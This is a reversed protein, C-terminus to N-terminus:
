RATDSDLRNSIVAAEGLVLLPCHLVSSVLENPPENRMVEEVGKEKLSVLLHSQYNTNQRNSTLPQYFQRVNRGGFPVFAEM